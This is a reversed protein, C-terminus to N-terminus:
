QLSELTKGPGSILRVLVERLGATFCKSGNGPSLLKLPDRKSCGVHKEAM